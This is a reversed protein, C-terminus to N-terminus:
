SVEEVQRLIAEMWSNRGGVVFKLKKNRITTIYIANPFVFLSRGRSVGEIHSLPVEEMYKSAIDMLYGVFVLRENTLYLAGTLVNNEMHLNAHCKKIIKEHPEKPFSYM